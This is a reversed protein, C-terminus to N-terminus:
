FRIPFNLTSITIFYMNYLGLCQACTTLSSGMPRVMWSFGLEIKPPFLDQYVKSIECGFELNGPGRGRPVQPTLVCLFICTIYWLQKKIQQTHKLWFVHFLMRFYVWGLLTTKKSELLWRCWVWVIFNNLINFSSNWDTNLEASWSFHM